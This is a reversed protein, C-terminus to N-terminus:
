ECTNKESFLQNAIGRIATDNRSIEAPNQPNSHTSV